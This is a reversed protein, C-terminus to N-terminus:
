IIPTSKFNGGAAINNAGTAGPTSVGFATVTGCCPLRAPVNNGGVAAATVHDAHNTACAGAEAQSLSLSLTFDSEEGTDGADDGADDEDKAEDAATEAAADPLQFKGHATVRAKTVQVTM